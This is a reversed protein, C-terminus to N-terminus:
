CACQRAPGTSSAELGSSVLLGESFIVCVYDREDVGQGEDAGRPLDLSAQGGRGERRHEEPGQDVESDLEDRDHAVDERGDDLGVRAVAHPDLGEQPLPCALPRAGAGGSGGSGGRAPGHFGRAPRGDAIRQQDGRLGARLGAHDGRRGRVAGHGSTSPGRRRRRTGRLRASLVPPAGPM